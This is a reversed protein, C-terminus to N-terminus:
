KLSEWIAKTISDDKCDGDTYSYKCDTKATAKGEYSIIAVGVKGSWEEDIIYQKILGCKWIQMTINCKEIKASNGTTTNDKNFFDITDGDANAVTTDVEVYIEYYEGKDEIKTTDKKFIAKPKTIDMKEMNYTNADSMGEVLSLYNIRTETINCSDSIKESNGYKEGKGWSDCTIFGSKSDYKPAKAVIRYIKGGTVYRITPKGKCSVVSSAASPFNHNYPLKLTTDDKFDKTQRRMRQVILTGSNEGLNTTGVQNKFYSYQYGKALNMYSAFIMQAAVLNKDKSSSYFAAMDSEKYTLAKLIETKSEVANPNQSYGTLKKSFDVSDALDGGQGKEFLDIGIAPLVAFLVVLVIAVVGVVASSSIIAIKAGKKMPKKNSKKKSKKPAEEEEDDFEEEDDIFDDEDIEEDEIEEDDLFDEDDIIEDDLEEEYDKKKM